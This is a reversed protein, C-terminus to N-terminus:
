QQSMNRSRERLTTIKGMYTARSRAAVTVHATGPTVPLFWGQRVVLKLIERLTIGAEVTLSGAVPDFAIFHDLATTQLVTAGNASDGYSRGMGRPTVGAAQALQAACAGRALPRLLRAEQKPYGGWGALTQLPQNM